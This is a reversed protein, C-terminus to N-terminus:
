LQHTEKSLNWPLLHTTVCVLEPYAISAPQKAHKDTQQNTQATYRYYHDATHTNANPTKLDLLAYHDERNHLLETSYLGM